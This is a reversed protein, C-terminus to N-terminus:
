LEEETEPQKYLWDVVASSPQYGNVYQLLLERTVIYHHGHLTENMEDLVGKLEEWSLFEEYARSIKPHETGTVSDGILLEEYLKEGPRLGSFTIEIDGDLNEDSKVSLGSLVIMRKALDIIKVPKGMELVFVDGGDGMAGAQIVLQAAEPISMFYRNIDPHTVTVPGGARIQERFVPIVSGSSGLVNGFRVMTFITQNQILQDPQFKYFEPHYLRLSQEKSLSQLVMEALRKSAGMVNTPRVAKDTSILVFNKVGAVIAAQATYLTGLVNNRLGQSVNHQVMPVHKYAAAHYLTEVSYRQMVDLMRGPDNISGLLPIIRVDLNNLRVSRQMEQDITYLNFESHEFLIIMKPKRLLAQRVMESGISGGAGTVMVVKNAIHKDILEPIPKVEERGLVDAIDVAQIEQIMLRGSALDSLGPMTKIPLGSSELDRLIEARQTRSLSPIALLIEEAETDRIVQDINSAVHYVRKGMIVRGKLKVNDDMFGVPHYERSKNLAEALQVGAAGAGYILVPIGYAKNVKKHSTVPQISFIIKLVDMLKYGRLWQRAGYRTLSLFLGSFCCYLITVGRPMSDIGFLYFVSILALVAIVTAKLITLLVQHSMYRLVASYLGFRIYVPLSVVPALLLLTIFLPQYRDYFNEWGLRVSFALVLALWISLTDVALTIMHKQYRPLSLLKDRM